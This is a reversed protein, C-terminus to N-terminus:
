LNRQKRYQKTIKQKKMADWSLEQTCPLNDEFSEHIAFHTVLPHPGDKCQARFTHCARFIYRLMVIHGGNQSLNVCQLDDMKKLENEFFKGM